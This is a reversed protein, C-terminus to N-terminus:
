RQHHPCWVTTRAAITDRRLPEGDRSCPPLEGRIAPSLDGSTSGGRRLMIPLRRRLTAAFRAREEASLTNAPRRPDLGAHWLMEDVLLNGLGAIVHQDLLATKLAIRRRVLATALDSATVDFLDVGRGTLDADISIHGLRRPDNMRLAATSGDAGAPDTRLVFRDWVPDDRGSAYVLRDIPARGDVVLRGTMGFHLGVARGDDSGSGVTLDLLLVKGIRRVAGVTAGVIEDLLGDPAVRDDAWGDVITRGVLPQAARRWIEAELGEPM